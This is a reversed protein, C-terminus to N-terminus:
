VESGKFKCSVSVDSSVCLLYLERVAALISRCDTARADSVNQNVNNQRIM